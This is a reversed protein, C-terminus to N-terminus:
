AVVRDSVCLVGGALDVRCVEWESEERGSIKIAAEIEKAPLEIECVRDEAGNGFFFFAKLSLGRRVKAVVAVVNAKECKDIKGSEKFVARCRRTGEVVVEPALWSNM